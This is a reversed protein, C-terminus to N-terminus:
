GNQMSVRKTILAYTIGLAFVPIEIALFMQSLGFLQAILGVIPAGVLFVGADILSAVTYAAVLRQTSVAKAIYRTAVPYAVGHSCGLLIFSLTLEWLTSSLATLLLGIAIMVFSLLMIPENTTPLRVLFLRVLFSAFFFVTFLAEITSYGAGFSNKAFIGGFTVIAIFPLSFSEYAVIGMWYLPKTIFVFEFKERLAKLTPESRMLIVFLAAAIAALPAFSLMSSILDNGTAALLLGQYIPSLVLSFSLIASFITLNRDHTGPASILVVSTLLLPMLTSIWFTVFLNVLTLSIVNRTVLFLPLCVATLALSMFISNGIKISSYGLYLLSLIAAVNALGVIVSIVFNSEHLLYKAYLPVSTQLMNSTARYVLTVVLLMVIKVRASLM